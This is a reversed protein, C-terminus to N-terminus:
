SHLVTTNLKLLVVAEKVNHIEEHKIFIPLVDVLKPLTRIKLDTLRKMEYRYNKASSWPAGGGQTPQWFWKWEHPRHPLPEWPELPKPTRDKTLRWLPIYDRSFLTRTGDASDIYGYPMYFRMPIFASIPKRPTVYEFNAVLSNVSNETIVRVAGRDCCALIALDCVKGNIKLRGIEGAIRKGDKLPREKKDFFLSRMKLQDNLNYNNGFFRAECMSHLIETPLANLSAVLAYVVDIIEESTGSFRDTHNIKPRVSQELNYWDRYGLAKAFSQQCEALQKGTIKSLSSAVRKPADISSFMIQM